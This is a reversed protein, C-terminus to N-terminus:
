GKIWNLRLNHLSDSSHERTLYKLMETLISPYPMSKRYFTKSENAQIV